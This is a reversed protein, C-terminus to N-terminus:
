MVLRNNIVPHGQQDARYEIIVRLTRARIPAQSACDVIAQQISLAFEQGAKRAPRYEIATMRTLNGNGDYVVEFTASAQSITMDAPKKWCKLALDRVIDADPAAYAPQSLLILIFPIIFKQMFNGM